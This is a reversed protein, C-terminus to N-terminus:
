RTDNLLEEGEKGERKKKRRAEGKTEETHKERLSSQRISETLSAPVLPPATQGEGDHRRPGFTIHRRRSALLLLLAEKRKAQRKGGIPWDIRKGGDRGVHSLRSIRTHANHSTNINPCQPAKTITHYRIDIKNKKLPPSAHQLIM